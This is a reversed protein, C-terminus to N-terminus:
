GKKQDESKKVLKPPRGFKLEYYIEFEQVIMFLDMNDATDSDIIKKVIIKSYM